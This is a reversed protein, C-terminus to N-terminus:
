IDMRRLFSFALQWNNLSSGNNPLPTHSLRSELVQHAAYYTSQIDHHQNRLGPVSKMSFISVPEQSVFRALIM